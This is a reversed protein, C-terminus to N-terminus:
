KPLLIKTFFSSWTMMRHYEAAHIHIYIYIYMYMYTYIYIYIYIYQPVEGAEKRQHRVPPPVSRDSRTLRMGHRQRATPLDVSLLVCSM